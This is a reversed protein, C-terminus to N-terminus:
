ADAATDPKTADWRNIIAWCMDPNPQRGNLADLLALRMEAERNEDKRKPLPHPYSCWFEKPTPM